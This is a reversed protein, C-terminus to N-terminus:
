QPKGISGPPKNSIEQTMIIFHDYSCFHQTIRQTKGEKEKQVRGLVLLEGHFIWWKSPIFGQFSPSKWPCNTLKLSPKRTKRGRDLHNRSISQGPMEWKGSTELLELFHLHLTRNGTWHFGVRTTWPPHKTSPLPHRKGWPPETYVDPILYSAGISHQFFRM